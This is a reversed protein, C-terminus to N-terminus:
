RSLNLAKQGDVILEGVEEGEASVVGGSGVVAGSTGLSKVGPGVDSAGPHRRSGTCREARPM